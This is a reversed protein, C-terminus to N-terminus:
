IADHPILERFLQNFIWDAGWAQASTFAVQRQQDWALSQHPKYCLDHNAQAWAHQFLTKIQLEFFTPCDARPIEPTIIDKPLFLIFHKGEYEFVNPSEPIIDQEEIPPIYAQILQALPEIDDLYFAVVRAGIQDQIQNLPDVYKPEGNQLAAAKQLFSSPTKARATVQDVRLFGHPSAELIECIHAELRRTLPKLITEYRITYINALHDDLSM